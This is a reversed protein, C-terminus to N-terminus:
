FPREEGPAYEAPTPIIEPSEEGTVEHVPVGLLAAVANQTRKNIPLYLQWQGKEVRVLWAAAVRMAAKLEGTSSKYHNWFVKNPMGCLVRKVKGKNTLHESPLPDWAICHGHLINTLAQEINM